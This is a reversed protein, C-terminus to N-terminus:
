ILVEKKKFSKIIDIVGSIFSKKFRTKLIFNMKFLGNDNKISSSMIYQFNNITNTIKDIVSDANNEKKNFKSLGMMVFPKFNEFVKLGEDLSLYFADGKIFKEALDKDMNATFGTETKGTLAQEYYSKNTSFILTSDKFGLYFQAPPALVIITEVNSINEKKLSIKDGAKNKLIEMLKDLLLKGKSEDKVTLSFVTNYSAINIGKGDYMAYNFNGGLNAIIEHLDIGSKVKFEEVSSNFKEIQMETFSKKIMKYYEGPNVGFSFYLLPNEKIGLVTNKRYVVGKYLNMIPASESIIGYSDILMDPGNINLSMVFGKYGELFELGSFNPGKSYKKKLSDSLQALFPANEFNGFFVLNSDRGIQSMLKKYLELNGIPDKGLKTFFSQPDSKYAITVFVYGKYEKLVVKPETEKTPFNYYGDKEEYKFEPKKKKIINIVKEIVASGDIVPIFFTVNFVPPDKFTDDEIAFENLVVGFERSQDIGFGNLEDLKMPNFGIADIAKVMDKNDLGLAPIIEDYFPKLDKFKMVGISSAPLLLDIGKLENLANESVEKEGDNKVASKKNCNYFSFLVLVILLLTSLKRM